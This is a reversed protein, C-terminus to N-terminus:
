EYVVAHGSVLLDTNLCAQDVVRWVLALYRGFSDSKHTQVILPWEGVALRYWDRVWATAADGAEKTAGRTEPCDVGLLRLSEIRRGHMGQDCEIYQTDGDVVRVLRAPFVWSHLPMDSM